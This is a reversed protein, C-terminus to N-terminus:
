RDILHRSPIVPDLGKPAYIGRSHAEALLHHVPWELATVCDEALLESLVEM